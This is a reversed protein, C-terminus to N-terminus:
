VNIRLRRRCGGVLVMEAMEDHLDEDEKKYSFSSFDLYMLCPCNSILASTLARIGFATVSHLARAELRRLMPLGHTGTDEVAQALACV